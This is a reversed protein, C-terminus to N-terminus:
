CVVLNLPFNFPTIFSAVGIPFRRSLLSYRGTESTFERWVGDPTASTAEKIADSVTAICRTVEIEAAGIPKGAELAILEAFERSNQKILAHLHTLIEARAHPRISTMYEKSKHANEFCENIEDKTALGVKAVEKGSFKNLIPVARSAEKIQGSCILPFVRSMNSQELHKFLISASLIRDM